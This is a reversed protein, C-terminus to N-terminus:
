HAWNRHGVATDVFFVHNQQFIELTRPKLKDPGVELLPPEFITNIDEIVYHGGPKVYPWLVELFNENTELSHPGDEILLDISELGFAAYKQVEAANGADCEYLQVRKMGKFNEIVKDPIKIDIGYINANPFFEHWVQISQGSAVGVELVNKVKFRGQHYISGYLDTYKHDDKSKDTGFKFALYELYEGASSFNHHGNDIGQVSSLDANSLVIYDLLAIFIAVLFIVVM